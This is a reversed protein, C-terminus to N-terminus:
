VSLFQHPSGTATHLHPIGGKIHRWRRQNLADDCLMAENLLLIAANIYLAKELLLAEQIQWVITPRQHLM